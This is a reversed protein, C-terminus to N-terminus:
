EIILSNPITGGAGREKPKGEWLKNNIINEIEEKPKTEVMDYLWEVWKTPVNPYDKAADRLAKTRAALQLPTFNYPNPEQYRPIPVSESVLNGGIDMM